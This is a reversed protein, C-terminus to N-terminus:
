SSGMEFRVITALDSSTVQVLFVPDINRSKGTRIAGCNITPPGKLRV